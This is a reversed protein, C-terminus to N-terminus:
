LLDNITLKDAETRCIELALKTPQFSRNISKMNLQVSVQNLVTSLRRLLLEAVHKPGQAAFQRKSIRVLRHDKMQSIVIEKLHETHETIDEGQLTLCKTADDEITEDLTKLLNLVVGKLSHKQSLHLSEFILQRMYIQASVIAHKDVIRQIYELIQPGASESLKRKLTKFTSINEIYFDSKAKLYNKCYKLQTPTEALGLLKKVSPIKLVLESFYDSLDDQAKALTKTNSGDGSSRSGDELSEVVEQYKSLQDMIKYQIPSLKNDIEILSDIVSVSKIESRLNDEHEKVQNNIIFQRCPSCVHLLLSLEPEVEPSGVVKIIVLEAHQVNKMDSGDPIYVLMEKYICQKCLVQGCLKCSYKKKLLSFGSICKQCKESLSEVM